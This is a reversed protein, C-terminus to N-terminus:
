EIKAWVAPGGFRFHRWHPLKRVHYLFDYTMGPSPLLVRRKGPDEVRGGDLLSSLTPLPKWCHSTPGTSWEAPTWGACLRVPLTERNSRQHLGRNM